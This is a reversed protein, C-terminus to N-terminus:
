DFIPVGNSGREAPRTTSTAPALRLRPSRAAAPTVHDVVPAVTALPPADSQSAAPLVRSAEPAESPLAPASIALAEAHTAVAPAPRVLASAGVGLLVIALAVPALAAPRFRRPPIPRATSVGEDATQELSGREPIAVALETSWVHWSRRSAFGLLASGFAQMSRYRHLPDRHMARLLVEDFERPISPRVRSPPRVDRTAIAHMLEYASEGQFPRTGTVCEYLVVALSYQDSQATVNKAGRTHEPSFYPYSGVLTGSQTLEEVAAHSAHKSVGFDVICPESLLARRLFVNSPKVDRHVVGAAHAASLASVLPLALDVTEVLSLAAGHAIREALTCGELLEMVLYPAGDEEDLDFVEVVHAHRVQAIARGEGVFRALSDPNAALHPHFRKIAVRKGLSRHTAEYVCGM